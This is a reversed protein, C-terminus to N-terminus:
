VVAVEIAPLKLSDPTLSKLVKEAEGLINGGGWGGAAVPRPDVGIM